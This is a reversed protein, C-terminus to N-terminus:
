KGNKFKWKYGCSTQQTGRCCNGINSSHIKYHESIHKISPWEKIFNGELDYQLVPKMLNKSINIKANEPTPSKPSKAIKLKQELISNNFQEKYIWVFGGATKVKNNKYGSANEFISKIKTMEMAQVISEYEKIFNGELDYQLVPKMQTPRKKGKLSKSIKHKAEDSLPGLKKGKRILAQKEKWENTHTYGRNGEGGDCINVLTGENKTKRGYTKILEIELLAAEQRTLNEKYIKVIPFGYKNFYNHWIKNRGEMVWARKNYGLGVYFIEKTNPNLHLYVYYKKEM